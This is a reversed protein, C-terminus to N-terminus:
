EDAVKWQPFGRRVQKDLQELFKNLRVAEEMAAAKDVDDSSALEALRAKIEERKYNNIGEALLMAVDQLIGVTAEARGLAGKAGGFLDGEGYLERDIVHEEPDREDDFPPLVFGALQSYEDLSNVVLSDQAWQSFPTRFLESAADGGRLREREAEEKERQRQRRKREAASTAM